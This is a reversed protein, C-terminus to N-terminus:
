LLPREVRGSEGVVQWREKNKMEGRQLSRVEAMEKGRSRVLNGLKGRSLACPKFHGIWRMPRIKAM